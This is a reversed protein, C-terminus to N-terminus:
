PYGHSAQQHVICARFRRGVARRVPKSAKVAAPLASASMIGVTKPPMTPSATATVHKRVASLCFGQIVLCAGITIFAAILSCGAKGTKDPKPKRTTLNPTGSFSCRCGKESTCQAFPPLMDLTLVKMSIRKGNRRECYACCHVDYTGFIEVGNIVGDRWLAQLEGFQKANQRRAETMREQIQRRDFETAQEVTM